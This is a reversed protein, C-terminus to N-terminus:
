EVLLPQKLEPASAPFTEPLAIKEWSNTKANKAYLGFNIYLRVTEACDGNKGDCKTNIVPIEFSTLVDKDTKAEPHESERNEMLFRIINLDGDYRYTVTKDKVAPVDSGDKNEPKYDSGSAWRLNLEVPDGNQWYIKDGTGTSPYGSSLMGSKFEWEVVQNSGDYQQSFARFEPKVVLAGPENGVINLAKDLFGVAADMQTIYDKAKGTYTAESNDALIEDIQGTHKQYDDVFTKLADVDLDDETAKDNETFPFNNILETNFRETLQGYSSELEKTEFRNVKELITKEILNLAESFIDYTDAKEVHQPTYNKMTGTVLSKSFYNELVALSSQPDHKQDKNIEKLTNFWRNYPRFRETPHINRINLMFQVVPQAYNEAIYKMRSKQAKLYVKMQAPSEIQYLISSLTNTSWEPYSLPQYLRGTSVLEGSKELLNLSYDTCANLLDTMCYNFHNDSLISLLRSIDGKVAELNAIDGSLFAEERDVPMFVPGSHVTEGRGVQAEYLLQKLLIRIQKEAVTQYFLSNSEEGPHASLFKRYDRYLKIALELKSRDWSVPTGSRYTLNKIPHQMFETKLLASLATRNLRTNTEMEFGGDVKQTFLQGDPSISQALLIQKAESLCRAYDLPNIENTYGAEELNNNVNDIITEIHLCPSEDQSKMWQGSVINDIWLNMKEAATKPHIETNKQKLIENVERPLVLGNYLPAEIKGALANIRTVVTATDPIPATMKKREVSPDYDDPTMCKEIEPWRKDESIAELITALEGKRKNFAINTLDHKLYGALGKFYNSSYCAGKKRVAHRIEHWKVDKLIDNLVTRLSSKKNNVPQHIEDSKLYDLLTKFDYVSFVEARMWSPTYRVRKLTKIQLNKKGKLSDPIGGTYLYDLLKGFSNIVEKDSVNENDSCLVMFRKLNKEFAKLDNILILFSNYDTGSTDELAKELSIAKKQLRCELSKYVSQTLCDEAIYKGIKAPLKDYWSKIFSFYLPDADIKSIKDLISYVGKGEDSCDKQGKKIVGAVEKIKKVRYILSVENIIFITFLVISIGIMTYQFNRIIRNRSIVGKRAPEALNQEAFIKREFLARSFCQRKNEEDEGQGALTLEGTFYIGRLQIPAHYSSSKFIESAFEKLSKRISKFHYPYLFFGDPDDDGHQSEVSSIQADQLRKFIQGFALDVWEPLYEVDNNYPNSWGFLEDLHVPDQARWFSQFGEITECGTVVLYVPLSFAFVEQIKLLRKYFLYGSEKMLKRNEKLDEASVTIVIGDAPREPRKASLNFLINEWKNDKQKDRDFVDGEINIVIGNNFFHWGTDNVALKKEKLLISQRRGSDLSEILADKNSKVDGALLYWPTAYRWEKKKTLYKVAKIGRTIPDLSINPIKLPKTRKNKGKRRILTFKIIGVTKMILAYLFRFIFFAILIMLLVAVITLLTSDGITKHWVEPIKILGTYPKLAGTVTDSIKSLDM